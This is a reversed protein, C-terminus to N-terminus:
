LCGMGAVGAVKRGKEKACALRVQGNQCVAKFELVHDAAAYHDVTARIVEVGLGGSIGSTFDGATQDAACLCLSVRM